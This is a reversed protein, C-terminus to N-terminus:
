KMDFVCRRKLFFTPKEGLKKVMSGMDFRRMYESLSREASALCNRNSDPKVLASMARFNFADRGETCCASSFGSCLRVLSRIRMMSVHEGKLTEPGANQSTRFFHHNM